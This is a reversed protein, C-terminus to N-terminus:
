PLGCARRVLAQRVPPVANVLSLGRQRLWDWGPLHTRYARYLGDTVAIMERVEARRARQYRALVRLSGIDRRATRAQALTGILCRADGFGLNV